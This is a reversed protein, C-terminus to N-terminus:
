RGCRCTVLAFLLSLVCCMSRGEARERAEVARQYAPDLTAAGRGLVRLRRVKALTGRMAARAVPLPTAVGKGTRL